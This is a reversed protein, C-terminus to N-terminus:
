NERTIDKKLYRRAGGAPRNALFHSAVIVPECVCAKEGFPFLRGSPRRKSEKKRNKLIRFGAQFCALNRQRNQCPLRASDASMVESKQGPRSLFPHLPRKEPNQKFRQRAPETHSQAPADKDQCVIQLVTYLVAM